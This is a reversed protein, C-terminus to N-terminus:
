KQYKKRKGGRSRAETTKRRVQERSMTYDEPREDDDATKRTQEEALGMSMDLVSMAEM